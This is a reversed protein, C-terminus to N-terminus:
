EVSGVLYTALAKVVKVRLTKGLLDGENKVVVPKYAFNRGVWSGAVKGKEDVLIEGTWGLWLQNRELSVQRALKAAEMSRRKIEAKDVAESHMDWAATKPRAFFKSVNVVDPQVERILGLTNQFAEASEGPFGCIVDTSVTVQPISRRFACVIEKFEAVTYFRRMRGLVEDDGSQVPLHLFKFVKGCGFASVLADLFPVVLNPTMMGVRVWFDGEVGCVAELLMALNAGVDRGYCATDQSTLWFERVGGAVDRQVRDVV